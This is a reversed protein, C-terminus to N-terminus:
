PMGPAMVANMIAVGTHQGLQAGGTSAASIALGVMVAFITLELDTVDYLIVGGIPALVKAQMGFSVPILSPPAYSSAAGPSWQKQKDLDAWNLTLIYGDLQFFAQAAGGLPKIEWVEKTDLDVLDPRMDGVYDVLGKQGTRRFLIENLTRDSIRNPPFSLEFDRGIARHVERGWLLSSFFAGSPDSDNVPKGAVYTYAHLTSPLAALGSFPDM